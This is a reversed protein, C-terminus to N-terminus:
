TGSDFTDRGALINMLTTKGAGNRAVLAVKDGENITLSLNTFLNIDGYNKSANDIELYLAM